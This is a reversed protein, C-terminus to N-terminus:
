VTDLHDYIKRRVMLGLVVRALKASQVVVASKEAVEAAVAVAIEMVVCVDGATTPIIAILRLVEREEIERVDVLLM